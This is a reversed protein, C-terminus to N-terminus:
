VEQHRHHKRATASQIAGTYHDGEPQLDEWSAWRSPYKEKRPKKLSNLPLTISEQFCVRTKVPGWM